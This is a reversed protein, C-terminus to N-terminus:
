PFAM